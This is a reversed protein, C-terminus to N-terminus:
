LKEIEELLADVLKSEPVTRVPEGKRFLLGVGKGGAIGVDAERAEGPGNVVCGMVAVKLARTTGQLREEVETAIRVLDIETRGCTPCSILEVGRRRLGLTKLIEYGAWVEHRPPATLSVRITDGIGQALLIGIGVASKVLGGRLTGAETIGVHFPYDVKAALLRYAAVTLPVDSAKLSIKVATFDLDELIAVHELASAVMAEATVAGFREVIRRDLSGANVGVRIPVGRERAARVVEAVKDRGGINGPNLRLGDVGAEVAALALRHDFHVDAVLAVEPVQARIQRLAQVAQQDPVAVRVIEAGVGVLERIQAVTAAVDRTDTSTMSQVSVPAGGGVQVSGLRIARTKRRM